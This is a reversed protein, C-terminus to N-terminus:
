ADGGERIVRAVESMYFDRNVILKSELYKAGSSPETFHLTVGEHMKSAYPTNFGIVGMFEGSSLMESHDANAMGPKGATSVGALKNQVFVSGSGRLWGERIPVTPVEMICDNLLDIMAVGLGREILEPIVKKFINDSKRNFDSFDFNIDM